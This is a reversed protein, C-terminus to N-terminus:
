KASLVTAIRQHTHQALLSVLETAVGRTGAIVENTKLFQSGGHFDCVHGGAETVLLAGAAADWSALSMVFFGDMRGAAVQALDLAAAGTRRISGCASAVATWAPLVHKFSTSAASPLVSGVLATSLSTCQSVHLRTADADGATTNHPHLWAGRGKGASFIEFQLPAGIVGFQIEGAAEIAISTAVYPFGHVFNYTGDLPDVIWRVGTPVANGLTREGGEEGLLTDGPFAAAIRQAIHMEIAADTDTAFDNASKESIRHDRRAFAVRIQESAERALELALQVRENMDRCYCFDGFQM